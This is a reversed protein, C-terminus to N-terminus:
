PIQVTQVATPASSGCANTATVSVQYTGAPVSTSLNRINGVALAGVYAGSVNLVYGTAAPGTAPPDWVLFVANGMGYFLYNRPAAPVGSCAGPFTLTVPNSAASVGGANQARLAFTYTGPPVGAFSFSESAGLPVTGTLAGSVDLLVSAPEGGEYSLKWSLALTTGNVLGTLGAPASPPVPVNVHLRVENSVGSTMGGDLAKVRIYFSGSPAAFTVAPAPGTQVAGM